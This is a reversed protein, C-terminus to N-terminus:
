KLVSLTPRFMVSYVLRRYPLVCSVCLHIREVRQFGNCQESRGHANENAEALVPLFPMSLVSSSSMHRQPGELFSWFPEDLAGQMHLTSAEVVASAVPGESPVHWWADSLAMMM